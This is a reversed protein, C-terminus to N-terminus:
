VVRTLLAENVSKIGRIGADIVLKALKDLDEIDRRFICELVMPLNVGTIIRVHRRKILAKGFIVSITEFLDNLIITGKGEDVKSIANEIRDILSDIDEQPNLSIVEINEKRGVLDKAIKVLEMGLDKHTIIVMGIM